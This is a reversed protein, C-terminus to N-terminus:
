FLAVKLGEIELFHRDSTALTIDHELCLAAIWLDNEPIPKGKRKLQWRLRAYIRATEETIALVRCKAILKEVSCVNEEPRNSNLAGFLLEGVVPAPLFVIDFSQVWIGAGAKDSLIDIARATDLAIANGRM